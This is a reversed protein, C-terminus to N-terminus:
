TMFNLYPDEIEFALMIVEFYNLLQIGSSIQM